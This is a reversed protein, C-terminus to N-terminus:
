ASLQSSVSRRLMCRSVSSNMSLMTRSFRRRDLHQGGVVREEVLPQRPVVPDRVHLATVEAAHREGGVARAAAQEAM